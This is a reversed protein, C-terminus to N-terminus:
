GGFSTAYGVDVSKGFVGSDKAQLWKTSVSSTSSLLSGFANIYSAKKANSAAAEYMGADAAYKTAEVSYGYATRAANNRITGMDMLALDHQSNQVDVASGSNVSIGSAAQGAKIAGAEQRAKLGYRGAELEGQAFAYDRNQEAIKQNFQAVGAQYQYMSSEAKGKALNGFVGLIGGGASAGMSTAAITAPDM